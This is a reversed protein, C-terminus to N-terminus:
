LLFIMSIHLSFSKLKVMLVDLITVIIMSKKVM